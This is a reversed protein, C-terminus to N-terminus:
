TRYLLEKVATILGSAERIRFQIQERTLKVYDQYDAESRDEFTKQLARGHKRNLFGTVVFEKQFYAILGSHKRFSRGRSVALASVAYFMAYYARNAAGRLSDREFLAVPMMLHRILM